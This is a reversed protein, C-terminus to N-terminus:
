CAQINLVRWDIYDNISRDAVLSDFDNRYPRISAVGDVRTIFPRQSLYRSLDFKFLKLAKSPINNNTCVYHSPKTMCIDDRLMNPDQFWQVGALRTDIRWYSYMSFEYGKMPYNGNFFIDWTDLFYPYTYEFKYLNSHAFVAYNNPCVLGHAAISLNREHFDYTIHWLYRSTKLPTQDLRAMFNNTLCNTKQSLSTSMIEGKKFVNINVVRILHM